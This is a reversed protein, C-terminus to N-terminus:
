RGRPPFDFDQHDTICLAPMGLSIARRIQEEVPTHSDGSFCTHVHCDIYM